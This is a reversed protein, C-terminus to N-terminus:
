EENGEDKAPAKAKEAIKLEIDGPTDTLPVVALEMTDMKDFVADMMEKQLKVSGGHKSIICLLGHTLREITQDKQSVLNGAAKKLNVFKQRSRILRLALKEAEPNSVPAVVKEKKRLPNWM